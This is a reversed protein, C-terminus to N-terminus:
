TVISNFNIFCLKTRPLEKLRFQKQCIFSVVCIRNIHPFQVPYAGNIVSGGNVLEVMQVFVFCFFLARVPSVM